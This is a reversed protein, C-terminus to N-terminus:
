QFTGSNGADCLSDSLCPTLAGPSTVYVATEKDVFLTGPKVQSHGREGSVDGAKGM